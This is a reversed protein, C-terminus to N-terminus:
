EKNQSALKVSDPSLAEFVRLMGDEIPLHPDSIAAPFKIDLLSKPALNFARVTKGAKTVREAEILIPFEAGIKQPLERGLASPWLRTPVIDLLQEKISTTIPNEDQRVDKPSIVKIHALVIVHHKNNASTLAEIFALQENMALGWVRDTTNSPSKNLLKMARRFAADGMKTLSDLVVITDPGWDRSNGLSTPNGQADTTKWDDLQKFASAFAQPIGSPELFQAGGRMKDEFYAIDLNKLAWPEAYHLLPDTNGDFDLMRIKFGANLLPALGGTKATGPYGVVMIRLASCEKMTAANTM